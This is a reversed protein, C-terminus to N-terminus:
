TKEFKKVVDAWKVIDDRLFKDVHDPEALRGLAVLDTIVRPGVELSVITERRRRRARSRRMRSAAPSPQATATLDPQIDSM